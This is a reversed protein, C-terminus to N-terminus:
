HMEPDIVGITFDAVLHAAAEWGVDLQLDNVVLKLALEGIQRM